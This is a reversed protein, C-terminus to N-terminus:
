LHKVPLSDMEFDIMMISVNKFGIWITKVHEIYNPARYPMVNILNLYKDNKFLNNVDTGQLMHMSFSGHVVESSSNSKRPKFYMKTLGINKLERLFKDLDKQNFQNVHEALKILMWETIRLKAHLVCYCIRDFSINFLNKPPPNLGDKNQPIQFM